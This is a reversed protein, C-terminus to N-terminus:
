KPRESFDDASCIIYFSTGNVLANSTALYIRWLYLPAKIKMDASYEITASEGPKLDHTGRELRIVSRNSFSDVFESNAPFLMQENYPHEEPSFVHKTGINTVTVFLDLRDDTRIIKDVHVDLENSRITPGGLALETDWNRMWEQKIAEALFAERPTTLPRDSAAVAESNKKSAIPIVARPPEDSMKLSTSRAESREANATQLSDRAASLETEAREARTVQQQYAEPSYRRGATYGSGIVAGLLFGLFGALAPQAVVPLRLTPELVVPEAAPRGASAAPTVADESLIQSESRSKVAIRTEAADSCDVQHLSPSPIPPATALASAPLNKLKSIPRWERSPLQRIEMESHLRGEKVLRRIGDSDFSGLVGTSDRLEFMMGDGDILPSLMADIRASLPASPVSRSKVPRRSEAAFIDYCAPGECAM